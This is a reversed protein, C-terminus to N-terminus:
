INKSKLADRRKHYLNANIVLLIPSLSLTIVSVYLYMSESLFYNCLVIFLMGICRSVSLYTEKAIVRGALNESEAYDNTIEILTHLNDLFLSYMIIKPSIIKTIPM